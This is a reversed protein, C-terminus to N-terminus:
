HEYDHKSCWYGAASHDMDDILPIVAQKFPMSVSCGRIGLARVGAIAGEIDTTTMAKYLYDLGHKEYLYNHFKIGHNSPHGSLSICIATDRNLAPRAM